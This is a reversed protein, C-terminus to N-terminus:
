TRENRTGTRAARAGVLAAIALCGMDDDRRFGPDMRGCARHPLMSGPKRRSSLENILGAWGM